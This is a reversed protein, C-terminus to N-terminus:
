RSQMILPQGDLQLVKWTKILPMQAAGGRGSFDFFNRANFRRDNLFSYLTGHFHVATKSFM